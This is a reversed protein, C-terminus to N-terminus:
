FVNMGQPDGLHVMVGMLNITFLVSAACERQAVGYVNEKGEMAALGVIKERM